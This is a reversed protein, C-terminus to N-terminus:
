FASSEEWRSRVRHFSKMKIGQDCNQSNRASFRNKPFSADLETAHHAGPFRPNSNLCAALAFFFTSEGKWGNGQAEPWVRLCPNCWKVTPWIVRTPYNKGRAPFEWGSQARFHWKKKLTEGGQVSTFFPYKTNEPDRCWSLKLGFGWVRTAGM